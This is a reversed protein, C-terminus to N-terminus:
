ATDRGRASLSNAQIEFYNGSHVGKGQVLALVSALPYLVLFLPGLCEYQRVHVREHPRLRELQQSGTGIIVHGFTIASFPLRSCVSRRPVTGEHRYIEITTGIRRARGGACLVPLALLLGLASCPMAWLIAVARALRVPPTM